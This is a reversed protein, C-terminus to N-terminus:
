GDPQKGDLLGTCCTGGFWIIRSRPNERRCKGYFPEMELGAARVALDCLCGSRDYFCNKM